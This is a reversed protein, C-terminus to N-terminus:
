LLWSALSAFAFRWLLARGVKSYQYSFLLAALMIGAAIGVELGFVMIAGFTLLLLGYEVLTVRFFANM